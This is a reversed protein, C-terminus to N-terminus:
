LISSCLKVIDAYKQSLFRSITFFINKMIQHSYNIFCKFAFVTLTNPPRWNIGRLLSFSKEAFYLIFKKDHEHFVENQIM